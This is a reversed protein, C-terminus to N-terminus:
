HTPHNSTRKKFGDPQTLEQRFLASKSSQDLVVYGKHWQPAIAGTCRPDAAHVVPLVSMLALAHTVFRLKTNM